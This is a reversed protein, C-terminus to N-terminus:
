TVYEDEIWIRVPNLGEPYYAGVPSLIIMFLYTNSPRVGLFPDTAIVFPRIYLSTGPKTPIWKEHHFYAIEKGITLVYYSRIAYM